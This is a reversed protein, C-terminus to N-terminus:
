YNSWKIKILNNLEINLINVVPIVALPLVSRQRSEGNELISLNGAKFQFM